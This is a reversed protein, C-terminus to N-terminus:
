QPVTLVQGGGDMASRFADERYRSRAHQNKSWEM